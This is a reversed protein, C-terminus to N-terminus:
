RLFMLFGLFLLAALPFFYPSREAPRAPEASLDALGSTGSTNEVKRNTRAARASHWTPMCNRGSRRNTRPKSCIASPASNTRTVAMGLHPNLWAFDRALQLFRAKAEDLISCASDPWEVHVSTGIKANSRVTAITLAPTGPACYKDGSMPQTFNHFGPEWAPPM